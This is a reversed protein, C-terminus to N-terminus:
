EAEPKPEGEPESENAATILESLASKVNEMGTHQAEPDEGFMAVKLMDRAQKKASPQPDIGQERMNAEAVKLMGSTELGAVLDEDSDFTIGHQACAQKFRPLYVEDFLVNQLRVAAEAQKEM